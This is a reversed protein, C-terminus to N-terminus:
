DQKDPKYDEKRWRYDCSRCVIFLDAIEDGDRKFDAMGADFVGIREPGDTDRLLVWENGGCKPCTLKALAKMLREDDIRTDSFKIVEGDTMESVMYDAWYDEDDM